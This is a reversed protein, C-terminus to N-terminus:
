HGSQEDGPQNSVDKVPSQAVLLWTFGIAAAVLSAFLIGIKAQEVLVPDKFALQSIFLSMTFGIGALWAAGLLHGWGVGAPLRAIRLRIALWSFCSIGIFKGLVLGLTVGMTVPHSLTQGLEIAHFDIAANSLAFLPIVLFTVWPSLTHEMHQQPSQVARAASELNEAITAMDACGLAHECADPEAVESHLASQLQMLRQEFHQLTFAPRAPITFALLVGAITAHIGSTLLTVWLVIGLLGYPLPHRIGGQNLIILLFFIGTADGLAILSIEHTYFIAIILVAGLDDVIALATLFIILNAPIRWSLLVLIGVAFAIDTATPIGWGQATPGDPNLVYYILAPMLMGGIAAVVPLLADRFSALEGVLIERKLELGVLLFFLMMLGENIWARLSLKLQLAGIGMYLPQEWLHRAYDGWVTNGLVLAVVTTGLLIIGGATTRQLFREFPSLIHGFLNELPYNNGRTRKRKAM